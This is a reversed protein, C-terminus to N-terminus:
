TAGSVPRAASRKAYALRAQERRREPTKRSFPQEILEATVAENSEPDSPVYRRVRGKAILAVTLGTVGLERAMAAMWGHPGGVGARIRRVDDPSVITNPAREKIAMDAM